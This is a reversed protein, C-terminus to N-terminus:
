KTIRKAAGENGKKVTGENGKKPASNTEKKTSSDSGKKGVIFASVLAGLTGGGVVSGVVTDGHVGLYVAAGLGSLGIILGFVQGVIRETFVFTNVRKREARRETAELETQDFIWDVRDPRFAHLRELHEVPIIPSDTTTHSVMVEQSTDDTKSRATLHNGM